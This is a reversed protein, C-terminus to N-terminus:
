NESKEQLKKLEQKLTELMKVRRYVQKRIKKV